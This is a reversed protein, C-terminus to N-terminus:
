VIISHIRVTLVILFRLIKRIILDRRIIRIRLVRRSRGLGEQWIMTMVAIQADIGHGFDDVVDGVVEGMAIQLAAVTGDVLHYLSCSAALLVYGFAILCCGCRALCLYFEGVHCFGAEFFEKDVVFVVEASAVEFLPAAEMRAVFLHALVGTAFLESGVISFHHLAHDLLLDGIEADGKDMLGVIHEMFEEGGHLVAEDSFAADFFPHELCSYVVSVVLVVLIVLSVFRPLIQIKQNKRPKQIKRARQM